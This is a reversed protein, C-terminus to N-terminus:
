LKYMCIERYMYKRFKGKKIVKLGAGTAETVTATEETTLTLTANLLNIKEKGKKHRKRGTSIGCM